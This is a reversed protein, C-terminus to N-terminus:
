TITCGLKQFATEGIFCEVPKSEFSPVIKSDNCQRSVEDTILQYGPECEVEWVDGEKYWAPGKHLEFFPGSCGKFCKQFTCSKNDTKM